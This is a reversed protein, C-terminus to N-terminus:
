FRNNILVSFLFSFQFYYHTVFPLCLRCIIFESYLLFYQFPRHASSSSRVKTEMLTKYIIMFRQKLLEKKQEAKTKEDLKGGKATGTPTPSPTVEKAGVAKGKGATKKGVSSPTRQSERSTELTSPSEAGGVDAGSGPESKTNGKPLVPPEDNSSEDVNELLEQVKTQVVKQLKVAWKYLDSDPRNYTKANEFM